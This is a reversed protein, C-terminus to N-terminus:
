RGKGKGPPPRVVRRKVGAPETIISASKRAGTPPRGARGKSVRRKSLGQIQDLFAKSGLAWGGKAGDALQHLLDVATGDEVLARYAEERAFPTNGLRWMLPHPSLRSLPGSSQVGALQRHSSWLYDAAAQVLGIQVPLRDMFAMCPLAYTEAELVSSRYRGSWLTGSRDHRKNFIRVYDRGVAQMMHPLAQGTDPTALLHFSNPLWVWAHIAVGFQSAAAATIQALSQRDTDDILIDTDNHGSQVVHHLQGAVALRPLRAM